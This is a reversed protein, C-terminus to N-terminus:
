YVISMNGYITTLDVEMGISRDTITSIYSNMRIVGDTQLITRKIDLDLFTKTGINFWNNWDVGDELAFFCNGKWSLIRTKINQKLADLDRLYSNKGKGFCWDHNVDLARVRM